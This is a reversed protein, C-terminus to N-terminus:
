IIHMQYLDLKYCAMVSCYFYIMIIKVDTMNYVATQSYLVDM